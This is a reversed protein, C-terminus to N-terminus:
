VSLQSEPQMLDKYRMEGQNSAFLIQTVSVTKVGNARDIVLGNETDGQPTAHFALVQDPGPNAEQHLFADFREKRWAQIKPSYLTASSWIHAEGRNLEKAYKEQGDWRMEYAEQGGLILTFPEINDLNLEHWNAVPEGSSLLDLLILGRSKRYPGQHPHNEFAGNLVVGWQGVRNFAIWSGGGQPDKPFYLETGEYHHWQPSSARRRKRHEDRTSTVLTDEGNFFLSVTCM